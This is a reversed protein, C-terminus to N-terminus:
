SAKQSDLLATSQSAILSYVYKYYRLDGFVVTIAM